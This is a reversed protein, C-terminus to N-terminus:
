KKVPKKPVPKPAPKHVPKVVKPPEVVLGIFLGDKTQVQM